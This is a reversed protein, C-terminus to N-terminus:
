QLGITNESMPFIRLLDNRMKETKEIQEKMWKFSDSLRGIEDKSTEVTLDSKGLANKPLLM